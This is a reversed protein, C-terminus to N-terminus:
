SVSQWGCLWVAVCGCLWVAVCGAVCGYMWVAWVQFKARRYYYVQGTVLGTDSYSFTNADLLALSNDIAGGMGDDRYLRYLLIPKAGNDQPPM